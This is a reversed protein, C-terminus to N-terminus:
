ITKIMKSIHGAMSHSPRCTQSILISWPLRNLKFESSEGIKGNAIQKHAAVMIANPEAM